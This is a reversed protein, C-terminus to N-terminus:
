LEATVLQGVKVQYHYPLAPHGLSDHQGADVREHAVQHQTDQHELSGEQHEYQSVGSGVCITLGVNGACHHEESLTELVEQAQKQQEPLLITGDWAHQLLEPM